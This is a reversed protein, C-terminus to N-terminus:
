LWPVKVSKEYEDWAAGFTEALDREEAPSFM